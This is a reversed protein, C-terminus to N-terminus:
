RSTLAQPLGVDTRKFLSQNQVGFLSEITGASVEYFLALKEM